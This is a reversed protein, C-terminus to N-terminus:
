RFIYSRKKKFKKTFGDLSNNNNKHNVTQPFFIKKKLRMQINGSTANTINYYTTCYDISSVKKNKTKENFM